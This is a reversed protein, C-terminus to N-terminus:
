RRAWPLFRIFRAARMQTEYSRAAFRAQFRSRDVKDLPVRPAPIPSALVPQISIARDPAHDLSMMFDCYESLFRAEREHREALLPEGRGPLWQVHPNTNIEWVQLRGDKMSYDIRGYEVGALAAIRRITEAHPNERIYTMEQAVARPDMATGARIVWDTSFRLNRPRIRDRLIYAGYKTFVGQDSADCFEIAIVKDLDYGNMRVRAIEAMLASRSDILPTIPGYHNDERRLFVPFTVERLDPETVRRAKFSNIGEEELKRLLDYRTLTQTPHNLATVDPQATLRDRLQTAQQREDSSLRELDTFVYCGSEFEGASLADEYALIRCREAISSGAQALFDEVTYEFNRRLLFHIM